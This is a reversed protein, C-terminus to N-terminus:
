HNIPHQGGARDMSGTRYEGGLFPSLSPFLFLSYKWRVFSSWRVAIFNEDFNKLFSLKEKVGRLLPSCNSPILLFQKRLRWLGTCLYYPSQGGHPQLLFCGQTIERPKSKQKTIHMSKTVAGRLFRCLQTFDRNNLVQLIEFIAPNMTLGTRCRGVRQSELHNEKLSQTIKWINIGCIGLHEVKFSKWKSHITLPNPEFNM